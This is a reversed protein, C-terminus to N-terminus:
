KLLTIILDKTIYILVRDAEETIKQVTDPDYGLFKIQRSYKERLDVLNALM